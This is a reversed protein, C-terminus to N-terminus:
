SQSTTVTRYASSGIRQLTLVCYQPWYVLVTLVGFASPGPNKPIDGQTTIFITKFLIIIKKGNCLSGGRVVSITAQKCLLKVPSCVSQVTPTFDSSLGLSRQCIADVPRLKCFLGISTNAIICNWNSLCLQIIFIQPISTLIYVIDTSFYFEKLETKKGIHLVDGICTNGCLPVFGFQRLRLCM